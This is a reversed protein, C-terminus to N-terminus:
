QTNTQKTETNLILEVGAEAFLEKTFEISEAWRMNFEPSSQLYYVSKIGSQIITKACDSCPLATVFITAGSLNQGLKHANLIANAEAHITLKLKIERNQLKIPLDQIERPFGNYGVIPIDSNKPVIVAGVKTSPDKSWSAVLKAMEFYKKIWKETM